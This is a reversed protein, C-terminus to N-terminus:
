SSLPRRPSREFCLRGNWFRWHPSGRRRFDQIGLGDQIKAFSLAEPAKLRFTVRYDAHVRPYEAGRVNTPAPRSDDVGQAWGLGCALASILISRTV